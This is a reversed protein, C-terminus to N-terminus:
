PPPPTAPPLTATPVTGPSTATMQVPLTATPLTGPHSPPNQPSRNSGPNAVPQPPPVDRVFPVRKSTCALQGKLLADVEWAFANGDGFGSSAMDVTINGNNINTDYTGLLAGTSDYIKLRYTDAALIKDWFFTTLGYPAHDLPSLPRLRVCPIQGAAPGYVVGFFDRSLAQIEGQTPIHVARYLVHSDLGELLKLAALEQSTMPYIEPIDSSPSCEEANLHIIATFGAPITQAGFGATGGLVMLQLRRDPLLRLIATDTMRFDIGNARLTVPLNYPAQLLLLSPIGCASTDSDGRLCINQMPSFSDPQLVPLTSSDGDARVVQTSVWGPTGDLVVRLWKGDASRADADLTTGGAVSGVIRGNSNPAARVNAGVVARVRIPQSPHLAAGASVRNELQVDGMLLYLAGPLAAPLGGQVNLLSMGWQGSSLNLASTQLKTVNYLDSREGPKDFALANDSTINVQQFAYCVQNNGVHQCNASLSAFAQSVLAMCQNDTEQRVPLFSLVFLLTSLTLWKSM